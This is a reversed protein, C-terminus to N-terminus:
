GYLCARDQKQIGSRLRVKLADAGAFSPARAVWDEVSKEEAPSAGFSESGSATALVVNRVSEPLNQVAAQASMARPTVRFTQPLSRSVSRLLM